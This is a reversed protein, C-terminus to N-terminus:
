ETQRTAVWYAAILVIYSAINIVSFSGCCPSSVWSPLMGKLNIPWTIASAALLAMSAVAIWKKTKSTLKM